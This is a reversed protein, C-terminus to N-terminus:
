VARMMRLWKGVYARRAVDKRKWGRSLFHTSAGFSAFDLDAQNALIQLSKRSFLSIHGNRPAAYWWGLRRDDDIELDSINTGIVVMLKEKSCLGLIRQLEAAPDITHEFVEISTCVNYRGVNAADMNSDGYPECADFVWGEDRLTRAMLGSGAGYDLGITARKSFLSRVMQRSQLPRREVYCPDVVVYEDNYIRSSWDTATWDDFYNTQTFGCSECRHYAVREGSLGFPYRGDRCSKNFDVYDFLRSRGNCIKCQRDSACTM